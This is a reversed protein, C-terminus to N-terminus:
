NQITFVGCLKVFRSLAGQDGEVQVLGERIAGEPQIRGTFLGVLCEMGTQFVVDPRSAQGQRVQLEGHNVQVQLIEPGLHLEYTETIGHAQEPHFFAQIALAMAGVSPLAVGECSPPLFQGGWKGLELLAKEL